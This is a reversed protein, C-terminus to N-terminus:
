RLAGGAPPAPECCACRSRKGEPVGAQLTYQKCALPQPQLPSPKMRPGLLEYLQPMGPYRDILAIRVIYDTDEMDLVIEIVCGLVSIVVYVYLLKEPRRVKDRFGLIYIREESFKLELLLM